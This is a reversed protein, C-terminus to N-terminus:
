SYTCYLVLSLYRLLYTPSSSRCQRHKFLIWMRVYWYNSRIKIRRHYAKQFCARLRGTNADRSADGPACFRFFPCFMTKQFLSAVKTGRDGSAGAVAESLPADGGAVIAARRPRRPRPTPVRRRRRSPSRRRVRPPASLRGRPSRRRPPDPGGRRRRRRRPSTGRDRPASPRARRRPPPSRRSPGRPAAAVPPLSARGRPSRAPPSTAPRSPPPRTPRSGRRPFPRPRGPLPLRTAPSALRARVCPRARPPSGRARAYKTAGAGPILAGGAQGRPTPSPRDSATLPSLGQHRGQTPVAPRPPAAAPPSAKTAAVAPPAQGSPRPLSTAAAPLPSVGTTAKPWSAPLQPRLRSPRPLYRGRRRPSRPLSALYSESPPRPRPSVSRPRSM